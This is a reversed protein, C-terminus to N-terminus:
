VPRTFMVGDDLADVQHRQQPGVAVAVNGAVVADVVLRVSVGLVIMEAVHEVGGVCAAKLRAAHQKVTPVATQVVELQQTMEAPGPQRPQFGVAQDITVTLSRSRHPVGVNGGGSRLDPQRAVSQDLYELDDGWVTVNSVPGATVQGHRSQRPLLVRLVTPRDLVVMPPDLLTRLDLTALRPRHPRLAVMDTQRQTGKQAQLDMAKSLADTPQFGLGRDNPVGHSGVQSMRSDAKWIHCSRLM